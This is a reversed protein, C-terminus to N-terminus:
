KVVGVVLCWEAARGRQLGALAGALWRAASTGGHPGGPARRAAERPRGPSIGETAGDSARLVGGTAEPVKVPERAGESVETRYASSTNPGWYPHPCLALHAGKCQVRVAVRTVKLGAERPAPQDGRTAASASIGCRPLSKYKRPSELHVIELEAGIAHSRAVHTSEVRM